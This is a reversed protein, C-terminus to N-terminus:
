ELIDDGKGHNDKQDPGNSWIRLREHIIRPDPSQNGSDPNPTLEFHLPKHWGDGREWEAPGNGIIQRLIKIRQELTVSADWPLTSNSTVLSSIDRGFEHEVLSIAQYSRVIISRTTVLPMPTPGFLLVRGYLLGAAILLGFIGARIASRYRHSQPNTLNAAFGRQNSETAM